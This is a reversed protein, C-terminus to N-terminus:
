MTKRFVLVSESGMLNARRNIGERRAEAVLELCCLAALEITMASLDVRNGFVTPNGVLFMSFRGPKLVRSIESLGEAYSSKFRAIVNNARRRGGTLKSDLDGPDQGLWRLSLAGYEAYPISAIYPPHTVVADVSSSVVPLQRADGLRAEPDYEIVVGNLLKVAAAKSQLSQLFQPAPMPLKKEARERTYMVNAYASHANSVRRLIDSFAVLALEHCGVNVVRDIAKRLAV